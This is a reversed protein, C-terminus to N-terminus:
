VTVYPQLVDRLTAPVRAARGDSNICVVQANFQVLDEIQGGDNERRIIQRIQFSAGSMATLATEVQLVDDLKAPKMYHVDGKYVAFILGTEERLSNQYVGISRLMETRGREAFRLYNAHYVIGGADTDEYYVRLPLVHTKDRLEGGFIKSM